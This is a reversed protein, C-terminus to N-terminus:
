FIGTNGFFCRVCWLFLVFLSIELPLLFLFRSIRAGWREPRWGETARGEPGEPRGGKHRKATAPAAKAAAKPDGVTSGGDKGDQVKWFTLFFKVISLVGKVDSFTLLLKKTNVWFAKHIGFFM